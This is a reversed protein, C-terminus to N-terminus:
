LGFWCPLYTWYEPNLCVCKNSTSSKIDRSKLVECSYPAKLIKLLTRWAKRAQFTKAYLGTSKCLLLQDRVCRIKNNNSDKIKEDLDLLATAHLQRGVVDDHWVQVRGPLVQQNPEDTRRFVTENFVGLSTLAAQMGWTVNQAKFRQIPSM